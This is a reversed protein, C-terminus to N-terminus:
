TRPRRLVMGRREPARVFAGRALRRAHARVDEPWSRTEQEFRDRRGAFLARTAEEFGRENGAVASMFRYASEQVRRLRAEPDPRKMAVEVLRRLVVSAGGTQEFLWAWHRPLLTVERAVVGLRPRGPGRTEEGGGAGERTGGGLVRSRAAGERLDLEVPESTLADFALVTGKDGLAQLARVRAEVRAVEGRAICRGGAFVVCRRPKVGTGRTTAM